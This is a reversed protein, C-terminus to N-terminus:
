RAALRGSGGFEGADLLAIARAALWRSDVWEGTATELQLRNDSKAAQEFLARARDPQGERAYAIGLNILKAPDEAQSAPDAELKEIAARNQQAALEDFAVDTVPTAAQMQMAFAAALAIGFAM